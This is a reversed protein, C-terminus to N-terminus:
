DSYFVAGTRARYAQGADIAAQEAVKVASRAADFAAVTKPLALIRARSLPIDHRGADTYIKDRAENHEFWAVDVREKLSDAM